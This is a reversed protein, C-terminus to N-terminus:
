LITLHLTFNLLLVKDDVAGTESSSEAKEVCTNKTKLSMNKLDLLMM